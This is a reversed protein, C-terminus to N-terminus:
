HNCHEGHVHPPHAKLHKQMKKLLMNRKLPSLYDLFVKGDLYDMEHQIVTALFGEADLEAAEGHYDQYRVKIADPRTIDADIGPFCLSAEPFTQMTESRWIIEPNILIHPERVGDKRLDVVVIRELLGVMNAGIGIAKEHYLISLMADVKQRTADNVVEVPAAKKKFIPNPAYVLAIQSM